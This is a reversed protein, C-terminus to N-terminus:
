LFFIFPYKYVHSFANEVLLMLIVSLCNPSVTKLVSCQSIKFFLFAKRTHAHIFLRGAHKKNIGHVQKHIGKNVSDSILFIVLWLARMRERISRMFTEHLTIAVTGTAMAINRELEKWKTKVHLIKAQWKLKWFIGKKTGM